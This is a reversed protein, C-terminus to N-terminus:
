GTGSFAVTGSLNVNSNFAFNFVVPDGSGDGNITLVTANVASYSTVNFVRSAVGNITELQGSSENITAGGNTLTINATGNTAIGSSLTGLTTLDTAVNSRSYNVSSPGVNMGNSNSYQSCNPVCAQAASFDLRGNITGPGSFSV